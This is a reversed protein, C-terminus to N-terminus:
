AARRREIRVAEVVDDTQLLHMTGQWCEFRGYNRRDLIHEWSQEIETRLDDPWCKVATDSLGAACKRAEFDEFARDLRSIYDEDSEGPRTPVHLRTNLVDHWDIFHSLLVRERPVRCTLFVQGEAQRCSDVLHRRRTRAWFWIAGKGTTALRAAMQRLMWNYADTYEQVALSIDPVLQGTSLLAEFAEGPQITHLLLREAYIDYGIYGSPVADDPSASKIRFGSM